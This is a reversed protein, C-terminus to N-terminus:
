SDKMWAESEFLSLILQKAARPTDTLNFVYVQINDAYKLCWLGYRVMFRGLSGMYVTFLNHCSLVRHYKTPPSRKCCFVLM